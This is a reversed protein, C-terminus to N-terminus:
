SVCASTSHKSSPSQLCKAVADSDTLLVRLLSATRIMVNEHIAVMQSAVSRLTGPHKQLPPYIAGGRHWQCRQHQQRRMYTAESM